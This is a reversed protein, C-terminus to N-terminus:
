GTLEPRAIHDLLYPQGGFALLWHPADVHRARPNRMRGAQEPRLLVDDETRVLRNRFQAIQRRSEHSHGTDDELRHQSGLREAAARPTQHPAPARPPPTFFPPFLHGNDRPPNSM